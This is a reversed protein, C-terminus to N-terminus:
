GDDSIAGAQRRDALSAERLPEDKPRGRRGILHSNSGTMQVM